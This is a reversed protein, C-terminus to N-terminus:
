VNRGGGRRVGGAIDRRGLRADHEVIRRGPRTASVVLREDDGARFAGRAGGTALVVARAHGRVAAADARHLQGLVAHRGAHRGVGDLAPVEAAADVVAELREIGEGLLVVDGVALVGAGAAGAIGEGLAVDVALGGLALGFDM